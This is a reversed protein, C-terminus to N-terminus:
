AILAQAKRRGACWRARTNPTATSSRMGLTSGNSGASRIRRMVLEAVGYGCVRGCVFHSACGMEEPVTFGSLLNVIPLFVSM